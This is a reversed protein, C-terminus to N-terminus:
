RERPMLGRQRKAVNYKGGSEYVQSNRLASETPVQAVVAPFCSKILLLIVLVTTRPFAVSVTSSSLSSMKGNHRVFSPIKMQALFHLNSRLILYIMDTINYRNTFICSDARASSSTEGVTEGVTEV